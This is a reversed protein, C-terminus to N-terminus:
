SERDEQEDTDNSEGDPSPSMAADRQEELFTELADLRAEWFKRYHAVWDYIEALPEPRLELFHERGQVRREVLGAGELVRIHKSVANLSMPFPEALKTVRIPGTVLRALIARRTPDAIAKFPDQTYEVM